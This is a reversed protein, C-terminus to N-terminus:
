VDTRRMKPYFFLIFFYACYVVINVVLLSINMLITKEASYRLIYSYIGWNWLSICQYVLLTICIWFYTEKTLLIDPHFMMKYMAYLCLCVVCLCEFFAFNSNIVTIPQFFIMNIVGFFLGVGAIFLGINSRKLRYIVQNFFLCIIVFELFAAINYVPLNTHYLEITLKGILETFVDLWLLSFIFKVALDVSSFRLFAYCAVTLLVIDYVWTIVSLM